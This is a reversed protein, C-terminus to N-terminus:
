ESKQSVVRGDDLYRADHFWAIADAIAEQYPRSVYALDRRAKADHFFMHNRAMRLGDRTVFPERGYVHSWLEAGLAFPYVASIPIRLRPPRHGIVRAIEALMIRFYVNARLRGFKERL